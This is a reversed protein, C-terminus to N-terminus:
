TSLQFINEGVGYTTKECRRHDRESHLPKKTKGVLSHVGLPCFTHREHRLRRHLVSCHRACLMRKIFVQQFLVRDDGAEVHGWGQTHVKESQGRM